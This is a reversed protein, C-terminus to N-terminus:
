FFRRWLHFELEPIPPLCFNRCFNRCSPGRGGHQWNTINSLDTVHCYMHLEFDIQLFYRFKLNKSIKPESLQNESSNDAHACTAIITALLLIPDINSIKLLFTSKGCYNNNKRTESTENMYFYLIQLFFLMQQRFVVNKNFILM